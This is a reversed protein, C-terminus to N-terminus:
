RTRRLLARKLARTLRVFLPTKKLRQKFIYNIRHIHETRRAQEEADDYRHYRLNSM